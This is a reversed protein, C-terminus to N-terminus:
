DAILSGHGNRPPNWTPGASCRIRTPGNRGRWMRNIYRWNNQNYAQLCMGLVRAPPPPVISPVPTPTKTDTPVPTDTPVVTPTDTNTPVVTPTDTDTPVATTPIVTPPIPTETTPCWGEDWGAPQHLRWAQTCAKTGQNIHYYHKCGPQGPTCTNGGPAASATGMAAVLLAVALLVFLIYKM